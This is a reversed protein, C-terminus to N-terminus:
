HEAVRRAKPEIHNIARARGVRDLAARAQNRMTQWRMKKERSWRRESTKRKNTGSKITKMKASRESEEGRKSEHKINEKEKKNKGKMETRDMWRDTPGDTPEIQTLCVSRERQRELWRGKGKGKKKEEKRERNSKKKSKRLRGNAFKCSSKSTVSSWVKEGSWTWTSVKAQVRKGEARRTGKKM